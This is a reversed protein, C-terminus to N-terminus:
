LLVMMHFIDRCVLNMESRHRCTADALPIVKFGASAFHIADSFKVPSNAGPMEEGM